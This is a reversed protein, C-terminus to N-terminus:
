HSKLQNTIGIISTAYDDYVMTYFISTTSERTHGLLKAIVKTPIGSYSLYTAFSARLGHLAVKKLGCKKIFRRWSGGIVNLSIYGGFDGTFVNPVEEWQDKFRKKKAEHQKKYELLCDILLDNMGVERELGNKTGKMRKGKAKSNSLAKKIYIMKNKFDIDIWRLGAIEGRRFGTCMALLYMCKREIPLVSMEDILIDMEEKKYVERNFEEKQPLDIDQCPSEKIIKHKKNAACTFMASTVSYINKVTTPSLKKVKGKPGKRQSDKLTLKNIMKQIILISVDEMKLEGLEPLIHCRLKSEKDDITTGEDTFPVIEELWYKAFAKVKMTGNFEKKDKIEALMAKKIEVAEDETIDSIQKTYYDNKGDGDVCRRISIRYTNPGKQTIYKLREKDKKNKAKAM